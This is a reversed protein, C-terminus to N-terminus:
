RATSWPRAAATARTSRRRRGPHARRSAGEGYAAFEIRSVIGKTVSLSSGGQPYGYVVVTEKVEPLTTSRPRAAAAQRLVVRGRAQPRGPGHGPQGGRGHRYAERQVAPERRLAPQCLARRPRQDPDAQRRHRGRHRQGGAPEAQDLSPPHRSLADDRLDQRGVRPDHKRERRRLDPRGPQDDSCVPGRRGHGHAADPDDETNEDCSSVQTYQTSHAGYPMARLAGIVASRNVDLLM